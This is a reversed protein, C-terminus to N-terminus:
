REDSNKVFVDDEVADEAVDIRDKSDKGGEDRKQDQSFKAHKKDRKMSNKALQYQLQEILQMQFVQQHQLTFLASQLITLDKASNASSGKSLAAAAFQAMAAKTNELADFTVNEQAISESDTKGSDDCRDMRINDDNASNQRKKVNGSGNESSQLDEDNSKSCNAIM